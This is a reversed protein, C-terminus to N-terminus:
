RASYVEVSGTMAFITRYGAATGGGIVYWREGYAVSDIGHRATPMAPGANWRNENPTYVWHDAFVKGAAIDEGGTVHIRGNITAATHGGRVAPLGSM